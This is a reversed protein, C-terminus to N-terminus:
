PLSPACSNLTLSISCCTLNLFASRLFTKISVASLNLNQLELIIQRRRSLPQALHPLDRVLFLFVSAVHSSHIPPLFSSSKTSTCSAILTCIKNVPRQSMYLLETAQRERLKGEANGEVKGRRERSKKGQKSEAAKM